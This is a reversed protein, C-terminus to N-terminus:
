YSRKECKEVGNEVFVIWVKQKPPEPEGSLLRRLEKIKEIRQM